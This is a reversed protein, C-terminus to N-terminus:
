QATALAQVLKQVEADDPRMKTLKAAIARAEGFRKMEGLVIAENYLPQWQDPAEANARQFAALSRDLQGSQKYCIGLDIRVNPDEHIALAREFYQIADPFKAADMYMDGLSVLAAADNPNQAIQAKLKAIQERVTNMTSMDAPPAAAAPEAPTNRPRLHPGVALSGIVLGLLFTCTCYVVTDRNM